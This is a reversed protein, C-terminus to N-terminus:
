LKENLKIKLFEAISRGFVRANELTKEKDENSYPFCTQYKPTEDSTTFTLVYYFNEQHVLQVSAAM